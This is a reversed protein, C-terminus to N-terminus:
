RGKAQRFRALHKSWEELWLRKIERLALREEQTAIRAADLLAMSMGTSTKASRFSKINRSTRIHATGRAAIM